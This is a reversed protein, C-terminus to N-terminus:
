SRGREDLFGEVLARLTEPQEVVLAHGSGEVVELRAGRHGRRAGALARGRLDRRAGRRGGAHSLRGRAAAAAPRARGSRRAPRRRGRVLGGAAPAAARPPPCSPRRRRRYAPSFAAATLIDYAAARDGGAAAERAAAACLARGQEVGEGLRETATALVLSRVRGPWRAALVIRGACRVLHGGRARIGPSGARAAGGRRGRPRRAHGAARRRCCSGASDCRLVQFRERLSAALPEWSGLTM